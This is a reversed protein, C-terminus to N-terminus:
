KKQWHICVMRMLSTPSPDLILRKIKGQEFCVIEGEIETMRNCNNCSLSLSRINLNVIDMKM